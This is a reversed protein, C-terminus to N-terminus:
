PVPPTYLVSKIMGLSIQEGGINVYAGTTDFTVKDVIGTKPVNLSDVYEIQKGILNQASESNTSKTYNTNLNKVEASMTQIAQFNGMSMFDQMFKSSDQANFPDQQKLNEVMLKLFDTQQLEKTPVRGQYASSSYTPDTVNPISM